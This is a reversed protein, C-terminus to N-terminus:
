KKTKFRNLYEHSQLISKNSQGTLINCDAIIEMKKYNSKEIQKSARIFQM